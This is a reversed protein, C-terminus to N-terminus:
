HLQDAGMKVVKHVNSMPRQALQQRLMSAKLELKDRVLRNKQLLAVEIANCKEILVEIELLSKKITESDQIVSDVQVEYIQGEETDDMNNLLVLRLQYIAFDDDDESNHDM